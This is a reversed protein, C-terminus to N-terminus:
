WRRNVWPVGTRKYASDVVCFHLTPFRETPETPDWVQAPVGARVGNTERRWAIVPVDFFPTREM